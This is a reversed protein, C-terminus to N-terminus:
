HVFAPQYESNDAVRDGNRNVVVIRSNSKGHKKVLNFLRRANATHLRICGHSAPRGLRHTSYTGHVAYDKNYFVSYPMPANDYKKSYHKKNLWYPRWSGTPTVHGKRATSVKWTYEHEGDIYVRMRQQSLDVVAKVGTSAFAQSVPVGIALLVVALGFGLVRKTLSM